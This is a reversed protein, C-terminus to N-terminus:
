DSSAIESIKRGILMPNREIVSGWFRMVRWGMRRLEGNVARDRCINGEIKALWYRNRVKFGRTRRRRWDKGHWFDGDCFVVLRQSKFTFDPCGPLSRDHTRYKVHLSRLAKRLLVEPKTNKSKVAAMM